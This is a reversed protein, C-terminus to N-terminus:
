PCSPLGPPLLTESYYDTVPKTTPVGLYTTLVDYNAAWVAPSVQGMTRSDPLCLLKLDIQLQKLIDGAPVSPFADHMAQAAAEPNKRTADWGAFGAKLFATVAAGNRALKDERGFVALGITPVGVTNFLIERSPARDAVQVGQFDTGSLIADVRKELLSAVQAPTALNVVSIKSLDLKQHAVIGGLLAAMATGPDVGLRKGELDHINAIGTSALSIVGYANAQLVPALVKLPAGKARLQMVTPGDAMALDFQGSAVLQATTASGKGEVITVDLGEKAYLGLAKAYVFGAQSGSANVNLSFQFPTLVQASALRCPLPACSLVAAACALLARKLVTM